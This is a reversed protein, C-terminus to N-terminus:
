ITESLTMDAIKVALMAEFEIGAALMAESETNNHLYGGAPSSSFGRSVIYRSEQVGALPIDSTTETKTVRCNIEKVAKLTNYVTVSGVFKYGAHTSEIQLTTTVNSIIPEM